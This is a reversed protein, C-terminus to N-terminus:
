VHAHEAIRRERRLEKRKERNRRIAVSQGIATLYLDAVRQRELRRLLEEADSYSLREGLEALAACLEAAAPLQHDTTTM